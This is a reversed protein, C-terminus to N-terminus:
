VGPGVVPRPGALVAGGAAPGLLLTELLWDLDLVTETRERHTAPLHNKGGRVNGWPDGVGNSQGGQLSKGSLM